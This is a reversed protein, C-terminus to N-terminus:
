GRPSKRGKKGKGVEKDKEENSQGHAHRASMWECREAKVSTGAATCSQTRASPAWDAYRRM